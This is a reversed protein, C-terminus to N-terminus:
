VRFFWIVRDFIPYLALCFNRLQPICFPQSIGLSINLMGLSRPFHLDFCGQSKVECLDSHNLDFVCTVASAPLTKSFSFGKPNKRNFLKEDSIWSNITEIRGWMLWLHFHGRLNGIINCSYWEFIIDMFLEHERSHKRLDLAKIMLPLVLVPTNRTTQSFIM